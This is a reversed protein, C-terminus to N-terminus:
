TCKGATVQKSCCSRPSDSGLVKAPAGGAAICRQCLVGGCYYGACCDTDNLVNCFGSTSCASACQNNEACVGCCDTATSETCAAGNPRRTCAPAAEPQADVSAEVVVSAEAEAPGGAEPVKGAEALGSSGSSGSSGSPLIPAGQADSPSEESIGAIAACGAFLTSGVLSVRALWGM